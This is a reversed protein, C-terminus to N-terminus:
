LEEWLNNAGKLTTKYRVGGPSGDMGDWGDVWKFCWHAVDMTGGMNQYDKLATTMM